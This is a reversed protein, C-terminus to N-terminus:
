GNQSVMYSTIRKGLVESYQSMYCYQAALLARDYFVPVNKIFNTSDMFKRLAAIKEDLERKEEVVRQMYPAM